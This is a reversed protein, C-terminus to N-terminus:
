KLIITETNMLSKTDTKLRKHIISALGMCKSAEGHNTIIKDPKPRVKRIFSMIQSRSSHGSFGRITHVKMKLKVISSHGNKSEFQLDRFGRQIRRGLTGEVQYSVFLLVNNEDEALHRLYFLAPGGQLMGNTALIICPGGNIIEMREEEKGSVAKFIPSLFPNKGQHFIKERLEVNLYEPHTTHIAVAESIMGDLYIPIEPIIKKTVFGELIIMIEQARGVALVPILLKGNSKVTSNVINALNRESEHKSPIVDQIGGYTAETILTELRPFTFSAPELLRSKQYKFDGTYVLNHDGNGFHLHIISSGLIHGSNHLTLKIDPSIDTVKGWTLPITHLIEKKVENKGYPIVKGERSALDIFDLQLMVMLNRTPETCYVPGEYGYKYLFPVLGSHDMHAHSVIVADLNEIDFEKIDLKPFLDEPNGVNMGCDLLINSDKTQILICSRGVERSGGLPTLRISINNFLQPRHIRKGIKIMIEKQLKAESTLLNRITTVTKSEIPPARVVKPRWLTKSRIEKLNVGQKGIVLGPKKAEITLEGLNRDFIIKSIEAEPVVLKKIFDITEEEDMRVEPDSRIVIRKRMKKALARLIDNDDVLMKSNKSYIAIEPGEFEVHTLKVEPPISEMIEKKIKELTDISSM